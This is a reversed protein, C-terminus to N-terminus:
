DIEIISSHGKRESKKPLTIRLMGEKFQGQINDSDIHDAIFFVKTFTSIKGNEMMHKSDSHNAPKKVGEVILEFDRLEIQIDDKQYGPVGLELIYENENEAVNTVPTTKVPNSTAFEALYNDSAFGSMFDNGQNHTDRIM